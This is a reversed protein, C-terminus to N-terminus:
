KKGKAKKVVPPHFKRNYADIDGEYGRRRMGKFTLQRVIDYIVAMLPVGVLMGLIGWLGGFLLIGFMVWLASLGTSDGLIKPGIVNGDLQQLIIIFIVFMLAHTPNDLLLLLACPVAGIFPGFFPIINTVGVIVAILLTNKFGMALCGIFCLVGIIASDLLKGMFFGNFMKDAYKTENLFWECWAPKLASRAIMTAQAALQVRRSLLYLAVIAGILFDKITGFAGTVTSASGTLVPGVSAMIAEANGFHTNIFSNVGVNAKDILNQIFDAHEPHAAAFNHVLDLAQQQLAKVQGPAAKAIEILSTVLQPVILLIVAIVVVLAFVVALVDALGSAKGGFRRTLWNSLPAVLYAIVGGFLFPRMIKVLLSLVRIEGSHNFVSNAFLIGLAAVAVGTLGWKIYKENEKNKM